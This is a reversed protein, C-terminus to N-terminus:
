RPRTAPPAEREGGARRNRAVNLNYFFQTKESCAFALLARHVVVRM